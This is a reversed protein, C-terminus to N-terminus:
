GLSFSTGRYAAKDRLLVAAGTFTASSVRWVKDRMDDVHADVLECSMGLNEASARIESVVGVFDYAFVYGAVLLTDDCLIAEEIIGIKQHVDHSLWDARYNVCMGVLTSLADEICQRTLLMQHGRCGAPAKDSPRDVYALVGTFATKNPHNKM